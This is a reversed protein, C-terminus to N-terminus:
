HLNERMLVTAELAPAPDWREFNGYHSTFITENYVADPTVRELM